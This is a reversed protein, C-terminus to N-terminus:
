NRIIRVVKGNEDVVFVPGQIVDGAFLPEVTGEDAAATVDLAALEFPDARSADVEYGLDALAQVTIASLAGGGKPAMLEGRLVEYRWHSNPAVSVGNDVPVKGGTYPRGGAENFAEVALPGRFHTDLPVDRTVERLMDRWKNSGIGLAHGMEHLGVEYMSYPGTEPADLDFYTRNFWISGILTLGSERVACRSAQGLSNIGGADTIVVRIVLDDIRGVMRGPDHCFDRDIPVDPLEGTVVEMWRAAARRVSAKESETFREADTGGEIFILEIHFDDPDPARAVRVPVGLTARLGAPDAATVDVVTSGESLPELVLFGDDVRAEVVVEDGSAATYVLTDGDPDSFHGALEVEASRGGAQLWHRVVERAVVPTRNESPAFLAVQAGAVYELGPMERPMPPTPGLSLHVANSGEAPRSVELAASVTDGAAVALSGGSAAGGQVSVPVEVSLPAGSPVRLVVNAPGPALVDATDTRALELLVPFPAGPNWRLNLRVLNSLGAFVGPPLETLANDFLNLEVLGHLGEFIRPPLEALANPGLGLWRLEGLGEFIGPPLSSLRNGDLHLSRLSTLTKFVDAPLEGLRNWGLWLFELSSLGEFIGVPLEVLENHELILARLEPSGAFVDPELRRLENKGLYLHTLRRQNRFVGLPLETLRNVSLWLSELNPLDDFIGAPLRSLRNQALSLSRLRTMGRFIDPPPEELGVDTLQLRELRTLGSFLDPPVNTLPNFGLELITLGTLDAVDPPIATLQNQSLDLVELNPLGALIGPTLSELGNGDLLLSELSHLSLFLDPPLTRLHNGALFLSRLRSLGEFDGSRLSKIGRDLLVLAKVSALHEATVVACSETGTVEVLEEIVTRTRGCIGADPHALAMVDLLEVGAANVALTQEGLTAGLTWVTSALGLSDSRVSEPMASGSGARPAFRVRAGAVPAGADDLVQAVVPEPLPKGAVGWQGGGSWVVVAAAVSDPELATVGLELRASGSTVELTYDGPSRGPRWVTSAYGSTGSRASDPQVSGGSAGPAFTVLARPVPHGDSGLLRVEVHLPQGASATERDWNRAEVVRVATAPELLTATVERRAEGSSVLLAYDRQAPGLIWRTRARGRSDSRVSDPQVSGDGSAPSFTALAGEVPRGAGDALRVRVRRTRDIGAGGGAELDIQAVVADPGVAWATLEAEPVDAVSAALKQEGLTPGVTWAVSALGEADSVVTEPNVSGGGATVAFRVETGVVARDGADVVKVGVRGPLSSGPLARKGDGFVRLAAVRQEVRVTAADSLSGVSARVEATGNGRATVLGSRDVTVVVEDTTEWRVAGDSTSGTGGTVRATFQVTEGLYTLAVSDPVIALSPPVGGPPGSVEDSDCAAVAALVAAVKLAEANVMSQRALKM